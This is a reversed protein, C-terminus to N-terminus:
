RKVPEDAPRLFPRVAPPAFDAVTARAFEMTQRETVRVTLEEGPKWGLYHMVPRPLNVAFCDGNRTIRRRIPNM